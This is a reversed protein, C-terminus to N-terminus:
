IVGSMGEWSVRLRPKPRDVGLRPRVRSLEARESEPTMQVLIIKQNLILAVTCGPAAIVTWPSPFRRPTYRAGQRKKGEEAAVVADMVAM